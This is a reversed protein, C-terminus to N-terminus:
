LNEKKLKKDRTLVIIIISIYFAFSILLREWFYMTLTIYYNTIDNSYSIACQQNIYEFPSIIQGESLSWILCYDIFVFPCILFWWIFYIFVAFNM